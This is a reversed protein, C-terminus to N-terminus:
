LDIVPRTDLILNRLMVTTDSSFGLSLLNRIVISSFSFKRGTESLYGEFFAQEIEEYRELDIVSALFSGIDMSRSFISSSRQMFALDIRVLSDGRVLYNQAKNDVFVYGAKHM